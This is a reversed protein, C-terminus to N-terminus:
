PGKKMKLLYSRDYHIYNLVYQYKPLLEYMQEPGLAFHKKPTRPLGFFNEKYKKM